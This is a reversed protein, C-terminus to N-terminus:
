SSLTNVDNAIIRKEQFLYIIQESVQVDIKISFTVCMAAKM